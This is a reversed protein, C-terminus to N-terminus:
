EYEGTGGQNLIEIAKLEELKELTKVEDKPAPREGGVFIFDFYVWYKIPEGSKTRLFEEKIKRLVYWREKNIKEEPKM